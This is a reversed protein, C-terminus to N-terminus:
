LHRRSARYLRVPTAIRTRRPALAPGSASTFGRIHGRVQTTGVPNSGTDGGQSPTALMGPGVPEYQRASNPRSLSADTRRQRKTSSKCSPTNGFQQWNLPPFVWRHLASPVETLRADQVGEPDLSTGRDPDVMWRTSRRGGREVPDSPESMQVLADGPRDHDAPHRAAPRSGALRTQKKVPTHHVGAGDSDTHGADPDAREDGLSTSGDAVGVGDRPYFPVDDVLQSTKRGQLAQVLEHCRELGLVALQDTMAEVDTADDVLVLGFQPAPVEEDTLVAIARYASSLEAVATVDGNRARHALEFEDGDFQAADEATETVFRLFDTPTEM